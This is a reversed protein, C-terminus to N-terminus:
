EDQNARPQPFLEMMQRVYLQRAAVSDREMFAPLAPDEYQQMWDRLVARYEDATAAYDPQDILNVQCGPDAALDYLEEPVRTLLLQVRDRITPDGAKAAAAMARFTYGSMPESRYTNDGDSWINWVYGFHKSQVARMPYNGRGGSIQYYQTFIRERGSQSEGRLVPLFSRGDVRPPLAIGAMDLVTPLMDIGSVFHTQDVTGAPVHNPWRVILPTRTSALYCNSKAFPFAMGNDSLFIVVTNDDVGRDKLTRMVAGVSDDARRVSSFYQALETRIEPLDPLFDPLEIEHPGYVRSPHESRPTLESYWEAPDAGYFPRHPDVINVMFYFPQGRGRSDDIFDGLVQAFVAPSRGRAIHPGDLQLDWGFGAYPTSHSVKGMIGVRYGNDRLIGPLIPVNRFRLRFFAEGGSRHPYRGTNIANRSPQCVGVVVHAHNFRMGDGALRDIHPTIDAVQSGFVGISDQNMDDVTILVINLPPRDPEGTPAAKLDISLWAITLLVLHPVIASPDSRIM